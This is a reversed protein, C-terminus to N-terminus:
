GKLDPYVVTLMPPYPCTARYTPVGKTLWFADAFQNVLEVLKEGEVHDISQKCMSAQLMIAHTLDHITPVQEFQTAKFYDGWIIRVAEKVETCAAEKEIVLRSIQAFGAVDLDGKDEVEKILDLLRICSLAALQATSPDYIKCPIDCHAQATKFGIVKDLIKIVSHMM